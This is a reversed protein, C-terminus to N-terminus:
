HRSEMIVEYAERIINMQENAFKIFSEPLDKSALTDPHFEKVKKHYARKIESDTADKSCELIAYYEDISISNGVLEDYLYQFM